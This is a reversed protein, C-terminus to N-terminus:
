KRWFGPTFLVLITFLELRGLMMAVICIWSQADSLVAFTTAPGVQNMGPGANNVCSIVATFATIVDLGTFLMAITLTVITAGYILMFALMSFVVKNDVIESGLRLPNVVRPHLIRVMERATQKFMLVARIMKIGGGTSGASASFCSLFLMFVPAFEPWISFDTSAFGATTAVSVTNFFAYRLATWPEFYTGTRLLYSAVVLSGLMLVFLTWRAEPCRAYASLSRLRFARFHTAFNLAALTMFIMAVFEIAFSDFYGFSADHTSVGGLSLISAGHCFADFWSMGAWKLCLVCLISLGAYVGYLGKATEAIRPTLRSDKMPGPTEARFVQSGGVGLVPLIAVALVLVGMGGIWVTLARWAHLSAPLLDLDTLTTAGTTTLGSVAEFYADTLSLNPLYFLFPLMAFIPLVVWVLSVLLFGDRPQLERRARRVTKLTALYLVGGVVLSIALPMGYVMLASQDASEGYGVAVGLPVLFALGFLAIIAGLLHVVPLFTSM